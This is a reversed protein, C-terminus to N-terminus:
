EAQGSQTNGTGSGSRLTVQQRTQQCIAGSSISRECTVRISPVRFDSTGDLGTTCDRTALAM